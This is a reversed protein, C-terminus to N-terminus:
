APTKVSRKRKAPAPKEPPAAEQATVEPAEAAAEIPAPASEVPPTEEADVAEPAPTNQAVWDRMFRRIERAASTDKADCLRVFADRESKDIRIVLQSTKKKKKDDSKNKGM